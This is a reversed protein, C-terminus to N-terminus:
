SVKFNVVYLCSVQPLPICPAKVCKLESPVPKWLGHEVCVSNLSTRKGTMWTGKNCKFKLITSFFNVNLGLGLTKSAMIDFFPSKLCHFSYYM